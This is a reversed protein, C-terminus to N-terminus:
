NDIGYYKRLGDVYIWETVRAPSLLKCYHMGAAASIFYKTPTHMMVSSVVRIQRGSSDQSDKYSLSTWIWLPGENYPGLDEGMVMQVGNKQFRAVTSAHANQLAWDYSAQNIVKCISSGDSTNFDVNKYGAGEMVAQRSKLKVRMESASTSVFGTDLGDLIDYVNQTVTNTQVVCSSTPTSCNSNVHPLHVPNIQYVPHFADTDNVTAVKLGGMIQQARESWRSGNVCAPSPPNSNCPPKLGYFGELNYADIIPKLYVSTAHVSDVISMMGIRRDGMHVAIFSSIYGALVTHADDDSMEPKLDRKKVLLPPPGSAFQIHTLGPIVIVPFNALATDADPAMKIRLYYEEMIRTVRCLGDLSGGLTMTPVKYPNGTDRYKSLLFSGMLVQGTAMTPNSALYDQLIVGGQSHALFFISATKPMGSANMAAMIRQIGGAIDGPETIDLPYEPIGVWITYNSAKQLKQTLPLYKDPTIQAGQVVVVGVDQAGQKTPKVVIDGGAEGGGLSIAIIILTQLLVAMGM